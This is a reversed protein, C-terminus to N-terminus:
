IVKKFTGIKMERSTLGEFRKDMANYITDSAEKFRAFSDATDWQDITLYRGTTQEDRLLETGRYGLASKFLVAWDGASGYAEEFAGWHEEPVFFEWVIVHM